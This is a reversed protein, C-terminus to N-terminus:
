RRRRRERARLWRELFADVMWPAADPGFSVRVAAEAAARGHGMAELAPSTAMKGSSCASGASVAVGALDLQILQTEARWGPSAFLATNDLRAVGSGQAPRILVADPAAESLAAELADRAARAASWDPPTEVLARAAAGFGAIGIVNETGSRRRFEQGGGHLLVPPELGLGERIILAGVGKPGGIKHASIATAAAAFPATAADYRESAGDAVAFSKGLAQTADFVVAGDPGADQAARGLAPLDVFGTESHAVGLALLRGGASPAPALLAGTGAFALPTKAAPAADAAARLAAHDAPSFVIERLAGRDLRAGLIAANLAETAGSTFVVTDPECGVLAAVDARATDVIKRAARGEAHQSSPNGVVDMAARMAARAEERLPATANHDLYLREGRESPM